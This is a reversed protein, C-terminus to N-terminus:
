LGDALFQEGGAFCADGHDNGHTAHGGGPAVPDGGTAITDPCRWGGDGARDAYEAGEGRKLVRQLVEAHVVVTHAGGFEGTGHAEVARKGFGGRINQLLPYFMGVSLEQLQHCFGAVAGGLLNVLDGLTLDPGTAGRVFQSQYVFQAVQFIGNGVGRM